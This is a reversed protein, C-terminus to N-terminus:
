GEVKNLSEAFVVLNTLRRVEELQSHLSKKFPYQIRIITWGMSRLHEDRISDKLKREDSNHSNGDAEVCIKLSPWVFDGYYRLLMPYNKIYGYINYKTFEKELNDESAWTKENLGDYFRKLTKINMHIKIGKSKLENYENQFAQALRSWDQSIDRQLRSIQKHIKGM